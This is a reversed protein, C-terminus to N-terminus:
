RQIIKGLVIVIYRQGTEAGWIPRGLGYGIDIIKVLMTRCGPRYGDRFLVADFKKWSYDDRNLFQSRWYPKNERYEEEKEGSLIMDFWKKKLTLRIIKM